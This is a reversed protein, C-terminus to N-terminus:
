NESPTAPRLSDMMTDFARAKALLQVLEPHCTIIIDNGVVLPKGDELCMAFHDTLYEAWRYPDEREVPM